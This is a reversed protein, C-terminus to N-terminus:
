LLGDMPIIRIGDDVEEYFNDLIPVLKKEKDMLIEFYPYKVGDIVDIVKGIKDKYFVNCSIYDTIVKEKISDRDIYINNGKLPLVLDINDMDLFTVMDFEKHRRYSNIVYAKDLVYLTNGINFASKPVYFASLIRIEGKLGHTNVVKGVYLSNM